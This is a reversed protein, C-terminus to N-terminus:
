VETEDLLKRKQLICPIVDASPWPRLGQDALSHASSPPDFMGPFFQLMDVALRAAHM